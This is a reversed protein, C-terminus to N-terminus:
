KGGKPLSVTFATGEGLRSQVDITGRHSEAIRKAIPLGLGSDQIGEVEESTARYFEDFILPLDKEAIGIGTNSVRV